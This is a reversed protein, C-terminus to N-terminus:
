GAIREFPFVEEPGVHLKGAIAVRYGVAQLKQIMSSIGEKVAAHNGHAGHKMPYMATFLSSRSPGCTPSAAFAHEFVMSEGSLKDLNPTRVVNNGYPGIDATGLDDAIFMVVNPLSPKEQAYAITLWCSVMAFFTVKKLM